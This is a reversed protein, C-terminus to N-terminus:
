QEAGHRSLAHPLNPPTTWFIANMPRRDAVGNSTTLRWGFPDDFGEPQPYNDHGIALSLGGRNAAEKM